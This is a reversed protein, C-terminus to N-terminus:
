TIPMQIQVVHCAGLRRVWVLQAEDVARWDTICGLWSRVGWLAM